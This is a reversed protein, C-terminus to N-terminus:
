VRLEAVPVFYPTTLPTTASVNLSTVSRPALQGDEELLVEVDELITDDVLVDENGAEVV